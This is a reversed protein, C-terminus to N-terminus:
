SALLSFGPFPALISISLLFSLFWVVLRKNDVETVDDKSNGGAPDMDPLYVIGRVHGHVPDIASHLRFYHGGTETGQRCLMRSGRGAPFCALPEPGVLDTGFSRGRFMPADTDTTGASADDDKPCAM